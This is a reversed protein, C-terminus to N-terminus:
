FLKLQSVILYSVIEHDGNDDVITFKLGFYERYENLSYHNCVENLVSEGTDDDKLM